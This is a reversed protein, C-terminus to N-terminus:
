VRCPRREARAAAPEYFESQHRWLDPQDDARRRPGVGDPDADRHDASHRARRGAPRELARLRARRRASRRPDARASRGCSHALRDGRRHDRHDLRRFPRHGQHRHRGGHRARGDRDAHRSLPHRDPQRVAAGRRHSHLLVGALYLGDVAFILLLALCPWVFRHALIDILRRGDGAKALSRTAQDNM